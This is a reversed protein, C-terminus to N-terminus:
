TAGGKKLKVQDGQEIETVPLNTVEGAVCEFSAEQLQSKRKAAQLLIRYASALLRRRETSDILGSLNHNKNRIM